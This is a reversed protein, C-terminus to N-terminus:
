KTNKLNSMLYKEAAGASATRLTQVGTSDSVIFYPLSPVGMREVAPNSLIGPLWGRHWTASDSRIGRKFDITDNDLSIDTISLGLEKSRKALRHLAPVISDSRYDSKNSLVLLNIKESPAFLRNKDERDLYHFSDLPAEASESILNRLIYNFSSTLYSPRAEPAIQAMLSDAAVPSKGSDYETVLLITSLIDAKNDRIYTAVTGNADNDLAEANDNLYKSWRTNIDSGSTRLAYRQSPTIDVTYTEGNKVILRALPHHEYDTIELLSPTPSSGFIEFEGERCATVITHYAGGSYYGARINQTPKGEISGNIRFQETNSCSAASLLIAAATLASLLKRM